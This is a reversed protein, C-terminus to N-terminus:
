STLNLIRLRLADQERLLDAESILEKEKRNNLEHYLKKIAPMAQRAKPSIREESQSLQHIAAEIHGKKLLQWVKKRFLIKSNSLGLINKVWVELYLFVLLLFLSLYGLIGLLIFYADTVLYDSKTTNSAIENKVVNYGLNEVTQRLTGGGKELLEALNENEQLPFYLAAKFDVEPLYVHRKYEHDYWFVAFVLMIITATMGFIKSRGSLLLMEGRFNWFYYIFPTALLLLIIFFVATGRPPANLYIFVATSLVALLLLFKGFNM